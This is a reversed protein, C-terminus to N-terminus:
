YFDVRVRKSPTPRPHCPFYNSLTFVQTSEKGVPSHLWAVTGLNVIGNVPEVGLVAKFLVGWGPFAPPPPSLSGPVKLIPTTGPPDWGQPTM